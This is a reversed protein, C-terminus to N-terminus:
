SVLSVTSKHCTHEHGAHDRPPPSFPTNKGYKLGCIQPTGEVSYNLHLADSKRPKGFKLVLCGKDHKAFASVLVWREAQHIPHICASLSTSSTCLSM